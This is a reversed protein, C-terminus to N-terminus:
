QVRCKEIVAWNAAAFGDNYAAEINARISFAAAVFLVLGCAVAVGARIVRVDGHAPGCAAGACLASAGSGDFRGKGGSAVLFAM